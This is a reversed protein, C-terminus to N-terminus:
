RRHKSSRQSGRDERLEIVDERLEFRDATIEGAALDLLDDLLRAKTRYDSRSAVGRDFRWRMSELDGAIARLERYQRKAERLDRRDDREDRRDDLYESGMDHSCHSCQAHSCSSYRVNSATEHRAGRSESRANRVDDRADEVERELWRLLREDANREDSRDRRRVADEWREVLWTLKRYDTRDDRLEDRGDWLDAGDELFDDDWRDHSDSRRNDHHGYRDGQDDRNKSGKSGKALALPALGVLAATVALTLMWRMTKNADIARMEIARGDLM